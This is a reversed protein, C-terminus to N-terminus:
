LCDYNTGDCAGTTTAWARGDSDICYENGSDAVLEAAACYATASAYCSTDGAGTVGQQGEIDTQIVGLQTGYTANTTTVGNNGSGCLDTYSSEDNHILEAISRVQSLNGQIRADKAQNSAGSMSIMVISALIGIIAIVVLLEILTFGKKM